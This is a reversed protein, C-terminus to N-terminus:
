DKQVIPTKATKPTKAKKTTKKAKAKVIKKSRASKKVVKEKQVQPSTVSDAAAFSICSTSALFTLAIFLASLKKM